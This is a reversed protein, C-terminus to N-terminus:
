SSISNLRNYYFHKGSRESRCSNKQARSSMSVTWTHMSSRLPTNLSDAGREGGWSKAKRQSWRWEGGSVDTGQRVALWPYPAVMTILLAPLRPINITISWHRSVESGALSLCPLPRLFAASPPNRTRCDLCDLHCGKGEPLAGRYTDQKSQTLKRTPPPAQSRALSVLIVSDNQRLPSSTKKKKM